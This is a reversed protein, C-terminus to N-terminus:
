TGTAEFEDYQQKRLLAPGAEATRHRLDDDEWARRIAETVTKPDEPPVLIAEDTFVDSWGSRRNPHRM